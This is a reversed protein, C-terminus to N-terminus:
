EMWRVLTTQLIPKFTSAPQTSPLFPALATLARKEGPTLTLVNILPNTAIPKDSQDLVQATLVISSATKQSRNEITYAILIGQPVRSAQNIAVQIGATDRLKSEDFRNSRWNYILWAALACVLVGPLVTKRFRSPRPPNM